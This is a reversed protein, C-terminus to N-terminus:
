SCIMKLKLDSKGKADYYDELALTMQGGLGGIFSGPFDNTLLINQRFSEFVLIMIFM